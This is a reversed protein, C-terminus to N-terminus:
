IFESVTRPYSEEYHNNKDETKFDLVILKDGRKYLCRGKYHIQMDNDIVVQIAEELSIKRKQKRLFSFM